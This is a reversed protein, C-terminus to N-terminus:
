NTGLGRRLIEEMVPHASSRTLQMIANGMTFTSIILGNSPRIDVLAMTPPTRSALFSSLPSAIEIEM